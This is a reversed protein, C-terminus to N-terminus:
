VYWEIEACRPPKLYVTRRLQAETADTPTTAAAKAKSKCTTPPLDRQANPHDNQYVLSQLTPPSLHKSVPADKICQAFDAQKDTIFVGANITCSYM